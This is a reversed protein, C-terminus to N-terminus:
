SEKIKPLLLSILCGVSAGILVNLGRWLGTNPDDLHSMVVALTVCCIVAIYSYDGKIHSGAIFLVLLMYVLALDFSLHAIFLGILGLAIGTLTGAIRHLAKKFIENIEHSSSVVIVISIMIWSSDPFNFHHTIALAIVFALSLRVGKIHHNTIQMKIVTILYSAM